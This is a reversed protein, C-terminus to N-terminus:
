LDKFSIVRDDQYTVELKYRTKNRASNYKGYKYKYIEKDASINRKEDFKYGWLEKVLDIHMGVCIKGKKFSRWENEEACLAKLSEEKEQERKKREKEIQEQALKERAREKEKNEDIFKKIKEFDESKKLHKIFGMKKQVQQYDSNKSIMELMEQILTAEEELEKAKKEEAAKKQAVREAIAKMEEIRKDRSKKPGIAYFFWAFLISFVAVGISEFFTVDPETFYMTIGGPIGLLFLGVWFWCFGNWIKVLINM